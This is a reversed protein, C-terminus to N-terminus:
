KKHGARVSRRPRYSALPNGKNTGQPRGKAKDWDGDGSEPARSPKTWRPKKRWRMPNVKFKRAPAFSTIGRKKMFSISRRGQKYRGTRKFPLEQRSNGPEQPGFRGEKEKKPKGSLAAMVNVPRGLIEKGHLAAIASIAEQEVPMEVFGFGRSKRGKKEMVIVVGSVAGFGAFVKYVDEEKASFSLNGVFINM